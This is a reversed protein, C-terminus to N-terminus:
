RFENECNLQVQWGDTKLKKKTSFPSDTNIYEPLKTKAIFKQVGAFYRFEPIEDNRQSLQVSSNVKKKLYDVGIQM